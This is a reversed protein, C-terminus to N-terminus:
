GITAARKKRLYYVDPDDTRHGFTLEAKCDLCRIFVYKFKDLGKRAGLDLNESSCIGCAPVKDPFLFSKRESILEYLNAGEVEFHFVRKGIQKKILLRM